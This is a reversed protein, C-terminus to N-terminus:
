TVKLYKPGCIKHFRQIRAIGRTQHPDRNERKRLFFFLIPPIPKRLLLCRWKQRRSLNRFRDIIKIELGPRTKGRVAPVVGIIIIKIKNNKWSHDEGWVQYLPIEM